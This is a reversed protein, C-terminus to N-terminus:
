GTSAQRCTLSAPVSPRPETAIVVRYCCAIVNVGILTGLALRPWGTKIWFLISWGLVPMAGLRAVQSMSQGAVFNLTAM